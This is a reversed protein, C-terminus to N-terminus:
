NTSLFQGVRRPALFFPIGKGADRPASNGM